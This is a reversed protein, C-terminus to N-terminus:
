IRWESWRQLVYGQARICANPCGGYGHVGVAVSSTGVKVMVPGGSQGGYTDILYEFKPGTNKTARGANFWQHTSPTKDGPYGSNQLLPLGNVQRFGMYGRIRNYLKTDPLIIAGHDYDSNKDRTWGTVSFFRSSASSGFPATTGNLGPVVKISKAWGNKSHVVHGSTIVCRPSIFFGTGIYSGGNAATIYLKCTFKFPAITTNEIKVRDDKDCVSELVDYSLVSVDATIDQLSKELEEEWESDRLKFGEVPEMEGRDEGDFGDVVVDASPQYALEADSWDPQQLEIDSM